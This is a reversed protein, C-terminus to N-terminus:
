AGPTLLRSDRKLTIFEEYAILIAIQPRSRLITAIVLRKIITYKTADHKPLRKMACRRRSLTESVRIGAIVLTIDKWIDACTWLILMVLEEPDHEITGAQVLM